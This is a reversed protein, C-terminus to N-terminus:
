EWDSTGKGEPHVSRVDDQLSSPFSIQNAWHHFCYDPNNPPAFGSPPSFVQDADSNEVVTIRLSFSSITEETSLFPLTEYYEPDCPFVIAKRSSPQTRWLSSCPWTQVSRQKECGITRNCTEEEDKEQPPPIEEWTRRPSSPGILAALTTRM